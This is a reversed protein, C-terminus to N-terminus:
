RVRLAARGLHARRSIKLDRLVYAVVVRSDVTPSVWYTLHLWFLINEGGWIYCALMSYNCVFPVCLLSHWSFGVLPTLAPLLFLPLLPPIFPFFRIYLINVKLYEKETSFYQIKIFSSHVIDFERSHKFKFSVISISYRREAFYYKTYIRARDKIDKAKASDWKM